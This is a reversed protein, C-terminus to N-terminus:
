LAGAALPALLRIVVNQMSLDCRGNVIIEGCEGLDYREFLQRKM